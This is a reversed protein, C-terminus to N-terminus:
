GHWRERDDLRMTAFKRGGDTSVASYEDNCNAGEGSAPKLQNRFQIVVTKGDSSAAISPACCPCISGTPSQYIATEAKFTKGGDESRAYYPQNGKGDRSDLWAVHLRGEGDVAMDQMGEMDRSEGGTVRRGAFAKDKPGKRFCYLHPQGNKDAKAHLTVVVGGDKCVGVRPGRTMSAMVSVMGQSVQEAELWTKGGDSSTKLWCQPPDGAAYALYLKADKDAAIASQGAGAQVVADVPARSPKDQAIGASSFTLIGFLVPLLRM